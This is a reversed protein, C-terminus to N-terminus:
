FIGRCNVSIQLVISASFSDKFTQKLNTVLYHWEESTFCAKSGLQAVVDHHFALCHDLIAKIGVRKQNSFARETLRLNSGRIGFIKRSTSRNRVLLKFLYVIELKPIGLEGEHM